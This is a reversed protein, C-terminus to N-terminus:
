KTDSGGHDITARFRGSMWAVRYAMISENSWIILAKLGDGVGGGVTEAVVGGTGFTAGAGAVLGVVAVVGVGFGVSLTSRIGFRAGETSTGVGGSAMVVADLNVGENSTVSGGGSGHRSEFEDTLSVAMMTLTSM